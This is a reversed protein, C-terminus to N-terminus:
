YRGLHKHAWEITYDAIVEWGPENILWHSHGAFCKVSTIAISRRYRRYTAAVQRPPVSRDNAASVLLLPARCDNGFNIHTGIGLAAEFFVRGPAPVVQQEYLDDADSRSLTRGAGSAFDDRHLHLVRKWSGWALRLPVADYLVGLHPLLRGPPVAALAIGACGLGRDLLLQVILGGLSHGILLPPRPLRRILQAYHEVIEAIGLQPLGASPDRRLQRPNDDRMPWPPAICTYGCASYRRRFNNWADASLWEGQIFVVTVNM